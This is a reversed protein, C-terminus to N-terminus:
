DRESNHSRTCAHEEFRPTDCFCIQLRAGELPDQPAHKAFPHLPCTSPATADTQAVVTGCVACVLANSLAALVEAKRASARRRREHRAANM